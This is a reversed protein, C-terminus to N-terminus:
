QTNEIIQSVAPVNVDIAPVPNIDVMVGSGSSLVPSIVMAFSTEPMTPSFSGSSIKPTRSSRVLLLTSLHFSLLRNILKPMQVATREQAIDKKKM